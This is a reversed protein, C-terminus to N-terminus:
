VNRKAEHESPTFMVRIDFCAGVIGPSPGLFLASYVGIGFGWFGILYRM